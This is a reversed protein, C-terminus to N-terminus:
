AWHGPKWVSNADFAGNVWVRKPEVHLTCSLDPRGCRACKTSWHLPFMVLTATFRLSGCPCVRAHPNM